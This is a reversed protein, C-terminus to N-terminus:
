AAQYLWNRIISVAEEPHKDVIEGIKKLSSAKVQGEIRAIDIMSEIGPTPPAMGADPAAPLEAIPAGGVVMPIGPMAPTLMGPPVDESERSAELVRRVIPRVVLLMALLGLLVYGAIEGIRFLDAKTLGLFVPLTSPDVQDPIDGPEAFRMTVVEVSDGRQQDFGIANRVLASLQQMEEPSRAQYSKQGQGDVQVINNILVAASVRKIVGAERVQTRTTKSIEYNTVEETRTSKNNAQSGNQGQAEPLNNAVTVNQQGEQSQNEENVTQTSRVV